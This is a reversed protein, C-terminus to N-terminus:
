NEHAIVALKKRTRQYYVLFYVGAGLAAVGVLLGSFDSMFQSILEWQSGFAYGLGGYAGLWTVEGAAAYTLFRWFTYGSGGAILNVPIALPTLLFRTLYVTLGGRRDFTAQAKRWALSPGFRRQVWDQAFRGLGYSLSDGLLAGGLGFIALLPGDLVGQRVFAGAAVVFLSGPLPVGIAGLLLALGFAPAGYILVGTLLSDTLSFESM